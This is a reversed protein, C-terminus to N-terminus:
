KSADKWEDPLEEPPLKKMLEQARVNDNIDLHAQITRELIGISEPNQALLADYGDTAENYLKNKYLLELECISRILAPASGDIADVDQKLANEEEATLIEFPNDLPTGNGSRLTATFKTIGKALQRRLAERVQGLNINSGDPQVGQQQWVVVKGNSVSLTIALAPQQNWAFRLKDLRVKRDKAPSILGFGRERGAVRAYSKLTEFAKNASATSTAPAVWKGHTEGIKQKAGQVFVYVAAGSDVRFQDGAFVPRGIAKKAILQRGTTDDPKHRIFAKKEVAVVMGVPDPAAFAAAAAGAIVSTVFLVCLIHRLSPM